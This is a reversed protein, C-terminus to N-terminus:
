IRRDLHYDGGGRRGWRDVASYREIIDRIMSVVEDGPRVGEIGPNGRLTELVEPPGVVQIIRYADGYVEPNRLEPIDLVLRPYIIVARALAYEDIEFKPPMAFLLKIILGVRDADDYDPVTRLYNFILSAASRIDSEAVGEPVVDTIMSTGLNQGAIMPIIWSAMEQFWYEAMDGYAYYFEDALAAGYRARDEMDRDGILRAFWVEGIGQNMGLVRKLDDDAPARVGARSDALNLTTLMSRMGDADLGAQWLRVMSRWESRADVDDPERLLRVLPIVLGLPELAVRLSVLNASYCALSRVTDPATPRYSGYKASGHRNRYSDLLMELVDLLHPREEDPISAHIEKVFALISQRGALSQHSLLAFLLDDDPASPGRSGAFAKAAVDRLEAMVRSAVLYEGFTAHLFEYRRRPSVRRGGRGGENPIQESATGLHRAEAAHVFFFEGIVHQGAEDLESREMLREDIAQLDEGLEKESVDQRGRAFMGLAAIALRDLHDRVRQDLESRRVPRRSSKGAERRAFEDLLRQYLNATSMGADLAPLAPDATYVALMLLLLPQRALDQQRLAVELTLERVEGAAIAAINAERWRDLWDAIDVDTFSDIKAITMDAPFSVRDAVVIRSTVVVIVPRELEAEKRQFEMVDQLYASRDVSSAQLLEDLGDLLVVCITGSSQDSLQWWNVRRNTSEDLAQQIHDVIPANAEVRRLPVRIVTYGAGSLRAAFVKTLLSKGAGPDGLLLLPLRTSDPATVYAALFDDFDDRQLRGDWWRGDAPRADRDAKIVRFRPNIYISDVTPFVIDATYQDDDDAPIIAERLIGRNAREVIARLDRADASRASTLALLAEVRALASRDQQLASALEANRERILTRTAADDNLMAWMAFEAVKAALELFNVRYREVAKEAILMWAIEVDSGASLGNIFNGVVSCFDIMWRGVENVNEEFGRAPSPAPVEAAYLTDYLTESAERLRGTLLVQKESDTIKLKDYFRKDVHEQFAEFYAAIVITTHAAAILQRREYGATRNLKGSASDLVNRLLEVAADKQETWGWIAAWLGVPVLAFGGLAAMGAAAGAGLIVGGLIKNLREIAPREHHGLIELAGRLTLSPERRMGAGLTM